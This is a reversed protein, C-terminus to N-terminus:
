ARASRAPWGPRRSEPRPWVWAARIPRRRAPRRLARRLGAGGRGWCGPGGASVGAAGVWAASAQGVLGPREVGPPPPVPPAFGPPAFGPPALGAPMVGAAAAGRGGCSARRRRRGAWGPASPPRRSVPCAPGPRRARPWATLAPRSRRAFIGPGALLLAGVFCMGCPGAWAAWYRCGMGGTLGSTGERGPWPAASARSLREVTVDGAVGADPPFQQSRAVPHLAPRPRAARGHM